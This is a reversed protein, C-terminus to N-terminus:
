QVKVTSQALVTSGKELTKHPKDAVVEGEVQPSHMFSSLVNVIPVGNAGTLEQRLSFEDKYRRELFTMAAPWTQPIKSYAADLVKQTLKKKVQLEAKKLQESFEPKKNWAYFTDESIGVLEAADKHSLGATINKCIDTIVEQGYKM